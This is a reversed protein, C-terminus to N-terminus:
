ISGTVSIDNLIAEARRIRGKPITLFEKGAQLREELRELSDVFVFTRNGITVCEFDNERIHERVKDVSCKLREAAQLLHIIKRGYYEKNRRDYRQAESDTVFHRRNVRVTKIRGESVARKACKIGRKKCFRALSVAREGNIEIVDSNLSGNSNIHDKLSDLDVYWYKKIKVGKIIGERMLERLRKPSIGIIKAADEASIANNPLQM